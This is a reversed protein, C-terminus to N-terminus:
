PIVVRVSRSPDYRAVVEWGARDAAPRVLFPGSTVTDLPPDVGWMSPALAVEEGRGSVLIGNDLPEDAALFPPPVPCPTASPDRNCEHIPNVVLWGAADWLTQRDGAVGTPVDATLVDITPSGGPRVILSGLYELRQGHVGLVLAAGRPPDGAYARAPADVDVPLPLGAVAIGPTCVDGGGQACSGTLHADAYVIWGDLSGDRVGALVQDARLREPTEVFVAGRSSSPSASAPSSTASTVATSPLVILPRDPTSAPFRVALVGAVVIVAGLTVLALAARRTTRRRASVPAVPVDLDRPAPAPM